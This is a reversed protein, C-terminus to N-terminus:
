KKSQESLVLVVETLFLINQNQLFYKSAFATYFITSYFLEFHWVVPKPGRLWMHCVWVLELSFGHNCLSQFTVTESFEETGSFCWILDYTPLTHCDGGGCRSFIYHNQLDFRSRIKSKIAPVSSCWCQYLWDSRNELLDVLSLTLLKMWNAGTRTITPMVRLRRRWYLIMWKWNRGESRLNWFHFCGM